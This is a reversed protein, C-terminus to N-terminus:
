RSASGEVSSQSGLDRLEQIVRKLVDDATGGYNDTGRITLNEVADIKAMLSPPIGAIDLDSDSGYDSGDYLSTKRQHGKQQRPSLLGADGDTRKTEDNVSQGRTAEGDGGPQDTSKQYEQLDADYDGEEGSDSFADALEDALNGM